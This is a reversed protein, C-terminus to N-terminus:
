RDTTRALLRHEVSLLCVHRSRKSTLLETNDKVLTISLQKAAGAISHNFIMPLGDDFCMRVRWTHHGDQTARKTYTHHNYYLKTSGLQGKFSTVMRKNLATPCTSPSSPKPSTTPVPTPPLPCIRPQRGRGPLTPHQRNSARSPGNLTSFQIKYFNSFIHVSGANIM